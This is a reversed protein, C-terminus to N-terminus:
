SHVGVDRAAEIMRAFLSRHPALSVGLTQRLMGLKGRTENLMDQLADNSDHLQANEEALECVYHYARVREIPLDPRESM